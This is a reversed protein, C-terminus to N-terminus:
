RSLYNINYKKMPLILCGRFLQGSRKKMLRIIQQFMNKSLRFSLCNLKFSKKKVSKMIAIFNIPILNFQLSINRFVRMNNKRIEGTELIRYISM